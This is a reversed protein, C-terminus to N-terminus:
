VPFSPTNMENESAAHFQKFRKFRSTKIEKKGLRRRWSKTTKRRSKTIENGRTTTSDDMGTRHEARDDTRHETRDEVRNKTRDDLTLNRLLARLHSAPLSKIKQEVTIRRSLKARENFHNQFKMSLRLDHMPESGGRKVSFTMAGACFTLMIEIIIEQM